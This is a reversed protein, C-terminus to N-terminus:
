KGEAKLKEAIDKRLAKKDVKQGAVYPMEKVFELREPLKWAQVDKDKLFSNVEDRTLHEGPRLVIYACVKEGMVPDPMGVVAVDLVKPHMSLPGEIEIPYINNGGRIIMDKIRGVIMLNGHKDYRGLDGTAYWGERGWTAWTREPDKFYGPHTLAGRFVIEGDAGPPVAKGAEDILKVENGPHPKGVTRHRVEKPDDAMCATITGADIIGYRQMIPCGLKQEAEDALEPALPAGSCCIIRLSSLDYKGVNPHHALRELVTPVVGMASVREREILKLFEGGEFHEVCVTRAGVYPTALLAPAGPGGTLPTPAALVDDSTLKFMRALEKALLMRNCITEEVLKPMGTTGTTHRIRTVDFPAYRREYLKERPYKEEIPRRMMEELSIAGEPVEDGAVIIHKLHPLNPRMGQTMAFHDFDRFKWPVVVAPAETRSLMYEVEKDRMTRYITLNLMGAKECAVYLLILEVCNPLQVVVVQDKEIGLEMLGLAIRDIRKKAGAWTLRMRSDVIAERDPFLQANRDWVQAFTMTDWIGKQVYEGIMEATYRTPKM